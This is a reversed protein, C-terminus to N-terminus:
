ASAPPLFAPDSPVNDAWIGNVTIDADEADRHEELWQDLERQKASEIQSENVERMERGRVQVIHWGFETEIPGVIQGIEAERVAEAFPGVFNSAPAWGLEGGQQGSGTDTSVARALAAFSEGAEIADILDEAEEQTSVLIHRANVHLLETDIDSRAEALAVRLARSEFYDTLMSRSIRASSTIGAYYQERLEEFESRREDVTLTATPPLPTFTPEIEATVEATAEETAESTPAPTATATPARTPSPTPSVFPTRTLTPTATPTTEVTEPDVFDDPRYGLEQMIQEDIDEQSVSVGLAEAEQRVVITDVMDDIVSQGLQDSVQILSLWTRLPEQGAMQNPDMGLAQLQGVYSNIRTNLLARELRTREEFQAVSITEGQVEAVVQNPTIVLEIVVAVILVLVIMAIAVGSGVLVYRQIEAERESRSKRERGQEVDQQAARQKPIGTTSKRKAM